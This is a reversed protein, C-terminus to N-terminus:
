KKEEPLVYSSIHERIIEAFKELNIKKLPPYIRPPPPEEGEGIAEQQQLEDLIVKKTEGISNEIRM